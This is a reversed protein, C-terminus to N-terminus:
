KVNEGIWNIYNKFGELIDLKIIEPVEYPHNEKILQEIYIYKESLSKIHLVVETDTVIENNWIYSSNVPFSHICAAAKKELLLNIVKNASENNPFSTIILSCPKM